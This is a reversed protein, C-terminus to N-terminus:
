RDEWLASKPFICLSRPDYKFYLFHYGVSINQRAKDPLLPNMNENIFSGLYRSVKEAGAINLHTGKDPTDKSWDMANAM